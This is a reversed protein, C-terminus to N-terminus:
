LVEGQLRLALSYQYREGQQLLLRLLQQRMQAQAQV